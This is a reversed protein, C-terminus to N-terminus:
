VQFIKGRFDEWLWGRREVAMEEIGAENGRQVRDLHSSQDRQKVLDKCLRGLWDGQRKIGRKEIM